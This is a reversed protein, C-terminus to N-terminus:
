MRRWAKAPVVIVLDAGLTIAREGAKAPSRLTPQMRKRIFEETQQRQRQMMEDITQIHKQQAAAIMQERTRIRAAAHAAVLVAQEVVQPAIPKESGDFDDIFTSPVSPLTNAASNPAGGSLGQVDLQYIPPPKPKRSM